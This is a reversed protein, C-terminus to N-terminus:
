KEIYMYLKVKKENRGFYYRPIDLDYEHEGIFDLGSKVIKNAEAKKKNKLIYNKEKTPNKVLGKLKNIADELSLKDQVYVYLHGSYTYEYENNIRLVLEKVNGFYLYQYGDSCTIIDGSEYVTTMHPKAEYAEKGYVRTIEKRFPSPIDKDFDLLYDIGKTNGIGFIKEFEQLSMSKVSNLQSRGVQYMLSWRYKLHKKMYVKDYLDEKTLIIGGSLIGQSSSGCGKFQLFFLVRDELSNRQIIGEKSGM